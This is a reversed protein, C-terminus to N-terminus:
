KLDVRVSFVANEIQKDANEGKYELWTEFKMLCITVTDTNRGYTAYQEVTGGHSELPKGDIDLISVIYDAKNVGEPFVPEATIEYASRVVKSIGFGEGNKQDVIIEETQDASEADLAFNFSWTGEYIKMDHEPIMFTEAEGAVHGMVEHTSTLFGYFSHFTFDIGTSGALDDFEAMAIGVFTHEDQFEGEIDYLPINGEGESYSADEKGDWHVVASSNCQLHSLQGEPRKEMFDEPFGEENTIRLAMYLKGNDRSFETVAVTIGNKSQVFGNERVDNGTESNNEAGEYTESVNEQDQIGVTFANESYNGPYSVKEELYAFIKGIIPIEAALAPNAVGVGGLVIIMLGAAIAAPKIISFRNTKMKKREGAKREIEAKEYIQRYATNLKGRLLESEPLDLNCIRHLERNLEIDGDLKKM